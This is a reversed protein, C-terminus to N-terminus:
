PHEPPKERALIPRIEEILVGIHFRDIEAARDPSIKM